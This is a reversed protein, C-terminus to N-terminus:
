KNSYHRLSQQRQEGRQTHTHACVCVCMSSLALQLVDDYEDDVSSHLTPNLEYYYKSRWLLELPQRSNTM